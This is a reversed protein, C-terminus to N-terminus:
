QMTSLGVGSILIKGTSTFSEQFVFKVKGM